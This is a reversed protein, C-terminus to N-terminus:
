MGMQQRGKYKFEEDKVCMQLDSDAIQKAGKKLALVSVRYIVNIISAPALPHDKILQELNTGPALPCKKPLNETWLQLQGDRDPMEFRVMSQFRRTFASDINSRLNTAVIIIGDFTEIRQLLYAVDQNAYQSVNDSGGAQKRQGLLADGEDIFIIWGKSEATNFLSDLRKSTEGVYKSTVASIDVRYVDKGLYKGMLSAALTKGTGSDGYFLIKCGPRAHKAMGWDNVLTNYHEMYAKVEELRDRTKPMLIMDEWELNTTLMHAPFDESFRPKSYKNHIFLDRSSPSVSLVGNYKSEGKKATGTEIISEKYFLHDVEFIAHAAIRKKLNDGALIFLATDATPLLTTGNESKSVKAQRQLEKSEAFSDLINPRLQVSLSLILVLREESNLNHKNVFEGYSSNESTLQPPILDNVNENGADKGQTIDIRKSICYNLWSLEEELNSLNNNIILATPKKLAKKGM